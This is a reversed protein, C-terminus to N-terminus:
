ELAGRVWEEIMQQAALPQDHPVMHGARYVVVHSLHGASRWWGAVVGERGLRPTRSPSTTTIIPGDNLYWLRGRQEAFAAKDPWELSSLWSTVSAVGDLIDYQGQYLLVPIHSLLDPILYKVSRMVDAAMAEGVVGNCSAYRVDPDARMAEKVEPLNLFRDVAKTPDYGETRRTDFMTALGTVNTIFSRLRERATHAELWKSEDILAVVEVARGAVEDRLAPPLLGSYFAAAALTQTQARPDTLGNGIAVGGLRFLPRSTGPPLSRRWGDLQAQLIYHAISPVYKGAYSEGTIFLPRTALSRYLTFFAQLAGYLHAAMGMEDRPISSSGNGARSYGTGVPQDMLLLGFIRNWAGPNRRVGLTDTVSWPGLEYFGGFTSACGPGGQLPPHPPSLLKIAQLWLLIPAEAIDDSNTQAEYYAYYISSGDSDVQLYGALTPKIDPVADIRKRSPIDRICHAPLISALCALLAILFSHPRASRAM